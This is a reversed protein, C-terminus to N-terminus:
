ELVLNIVRVVQRVKGVNEAFERSTKCVFSCPEDCSDVIKVKGDAFTLRGGCVKSNGWGLGSNLVTYCNPNSTLERAAKEIQLDTLEIKM